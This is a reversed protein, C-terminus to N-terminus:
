FELGIQKLGGDADIRSKIGALIADAHNATAAGDGVPAVGAAPTPPQPDTKLTITRALRDALADLEKDTAASLAASTPAVKKLVISAAQLAAAEEATHTAAPKKKIAVVLDELRSPPMLDYPDMAGIYGERARLVLKGVVTLVACAVLAVVVAYM